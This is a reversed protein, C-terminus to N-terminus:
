KLFLSFTHTYIMSAGSFIHRNDCPRVNMVPVEIAQALIRDRTPFMYNLTAEPFVLVDSGLRKTAEIFRIYSDINRRVLQTDTLNTDPESGFEVISAIYQKASTSLAILCFIILSQFHSHRQM